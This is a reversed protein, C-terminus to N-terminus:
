PAMEWLCVVWELGTCQQQGDEFTSDCVCCVNSNITIDFEEECRRPHTGTSLRLSHKLSSSSYDSSSTSSGLDSTALTGAAASKSTTKQKKAQTDPAPTLRKKAGNECKKAMEEAKKSM